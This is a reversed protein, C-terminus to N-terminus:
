DKVDVLGAEEADTSKYGDAEAAIPETEPVHYCECCRMWPVLVAVNELYSAYEEEGGWRELGAKELLPIGSFFSIQLATGIPCLISFFAWPYAFYPAAAIFIGFWLVIEGFYNPHRSISWLGTTIFRGKNAPNNRFVTKQYDSVTEFVIGFVFLVWGIASIYIYKNDTKDTTWMFLSPLINLYVWVGQLLWYFLLIAPNKKAEEFRSDKGTKIVRYLLFAGLKAAWLCICIAQVLKEEFSYNKSTNWNYFVGLLACSIHTLAGIFDYFKETKLVISLVGFVLQLGFDVILTIYFISIAM